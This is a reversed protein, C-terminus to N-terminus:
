PGFIGIIFTPYHEFGAQGGFQWLKKKVNEKLDSLSNNNLSSRHIRRATKASELFLLATQV